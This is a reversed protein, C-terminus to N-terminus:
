KADRVREFFGKGPTQHPQHRLPGPVRLTKVPSMLQPDPREESSVEQQGSWVAGLDDVGIMRASSAMSVSRNSANRRDSAVAEERRAVSVVTGLVVIYALLLWVPASTEDLRGLLTDGHFHEAFLDLAEIPM